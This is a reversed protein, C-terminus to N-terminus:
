SPKAAQGSTITQLAALSFLALEGVQQPGLTEADQREREQRWLRSVIRRDRLTMPRRRDASRRQARNM